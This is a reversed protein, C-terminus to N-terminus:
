LARYWIQCTKLRLSFVRAYVAAMKNSLLLKKKCDVSFQFLLGKYYIKLTRMVILDISM